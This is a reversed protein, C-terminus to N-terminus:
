SPRRAARTPYAVDPPPDGNPWDGAKDPFDPRPQADIYSALDFAQQDTLTGPQDFPMNRSIFDAATRVRAMGAGINYSDPGWVPPGAATGQGDAGHCRACADGFLRKGAARDGQFATWRQLRTSRAPQTGAVAVGRSLFAFYAIMDAMDRGAPDLPTGNMSRRFCDNIRFAMTEITASRSRYQPYRAFVGIWSGSERLGADLHCSSCRLRNGVHAPLSDRTAVLLARGRRVADGYPGAPILSDDFAVPGHPAHTPQPEPACAVLASIYAIVLVPWSGHLTSRVRPYYRRPSQLCPPTGIPM